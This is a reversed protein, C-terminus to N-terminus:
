KTANVTLKHGKSNAWVFKQAFVWAVRENSVDYCDKSNMAICQATPVQATASSHYMQYYYPKIIIALKIYDMEKPYAGGFSSLFIHAM